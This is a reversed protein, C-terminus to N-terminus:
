LGHANQKCKARADHNYGPKPHPSTDLMTEMSDYTVIHVCKRYLHIRIERAAQVHGQTGSAFVKSLAIAIFYDNFRQYTKLIELWAM